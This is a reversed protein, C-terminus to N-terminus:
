KEFSHIELKRKNIKLTMLIIFILLAVISVALFQMFTNKTNLDAVPEIQLQETITPPEIFKQVDDNGVPL